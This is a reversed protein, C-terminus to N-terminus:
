VDRGLGQGSSKVAALPLYPTEGKISASSSSAASDTSCLLVDRLLRCSPCQLSLRLRQSSHRHRSLDSCSTRRLLPHM